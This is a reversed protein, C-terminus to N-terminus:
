TRETKNFDYLGLFANEYDFTQFLLRRLISNHISAACSYLGVAESMNGTGVCEGM